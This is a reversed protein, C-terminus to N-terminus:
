CYGNLHRMLDAVNERSGTDVNLTYRHRPDPDRRIAIDAGGYLKGLVRHLDAQVAAHTEESNPALLRDNLAILVEDTRFKAAGALISDRELKRCAKLASAFASALRDEFGGESPQKRDYLLGAKGDTRDISYNAEHGVLLTVPGHHVHSYDAVDVLVEDTTEPIWTNFVRFWTEPAVDEGSELYFKIQIRYANM